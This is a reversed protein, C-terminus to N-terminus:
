IRACFLSTGGMAAGNDGPAAESLLNVGLPEFLARVFSTCDDGYTKGKVVVRSKGLLAQATGVATDRAGPAVV